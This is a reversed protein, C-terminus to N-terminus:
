SRLDSLDLTIKHNKHSLGWIIFNLMGELLQIEDGANHPVATKKEHM